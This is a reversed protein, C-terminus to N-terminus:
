SRSGRCAGERHRLGPRIRRPYSGTPHWGDGLYAARRLVPLSTGGGIWLPISERQRPKPSFKVKDFQWLEGRHTAEPKTFLARMVQLSENTITGRKNFPIGLADFEEALAGIGVGLILRGGALQDLTAAFKALVAPRHYPLVLVSTGLSIRSTRAAIFALLALPSYYPRNGLRTEVYGVNLIHESMWISSYRLQEALVGLEVLDEPSEVGWNNPIAVGIKM